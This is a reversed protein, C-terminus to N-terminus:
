RRGTGRTGSKRAIKLMEELAAEGARQADYDNNMHEVQMIVQAQQINISEQTGIGNFSKSDDLLPSLSDFVYRLTNVGKLFDNRLFRTTDADFVSEPRSKTGDLWAPCTFDALGGKKFRIGLAAITKKGVIGDVLLGM